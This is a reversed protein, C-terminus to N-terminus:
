NVLDVQDILNKASTLYVPTADGMYAGEINFSFFEEAEDRDMGDKMLIDVVLDRDYCVVPAKGGASVLGAIAADMTSPELLLFTGDIENIAARVTDTKYTAVLAVPTTIFVPSGESQGASMVNAVFGEAEERSIGDAVLIDIVADRDYGVVGYDDGFGAVLGVIAADLQAPELIQSAGELENVAVRIPSVPVVVEQSM